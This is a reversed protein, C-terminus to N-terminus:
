LRTIILVIALIVALVVFLKLMKKVFSLIGLVIIIATFVIGVIKIIEPLPVIFEEYLGILKGDIDLTDQLFANFKDYIRLFFGKIADWIAINM